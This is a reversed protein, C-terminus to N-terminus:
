RGDRELQGIRASIKSDKVGLLLTRMLKTNKEREVIQRKEATDTEDLVTLESAPLQADFAEELAESFGAEAAYAALQLMYLPFDKEKGSFQPRRQVHDNSM